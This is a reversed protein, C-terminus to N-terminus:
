PRNRFFFFTFSDFCTFSPLCLTKPRLKSTLM